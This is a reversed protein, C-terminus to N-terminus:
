ANWWNVLRLAATLYLSRCRPDDAAAHLCALTYKVLHADEHLSAATALEALTVDPPSGPGITEPLDM